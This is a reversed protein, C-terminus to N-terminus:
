SSGFSFVHLNSWMVSRVLQPRLGTSSGQALTFHKMLYFLTITCNDKFQKLLKIKLYLCPYRRSHIGQIVSDLLVYFKIVNWIASLRLVLVALNCFGDADMLTIIWISLENYLTAEKLLFSKTCLNCVLLILVIEPCEMSWASFWGRSANNTRTHWQV